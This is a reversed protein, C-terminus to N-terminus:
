MFSYACFLVMTKIRESVKFGNFFFVINCCHQFITKRLLYLYIIFQMLLRAIKIKKLKACFHKVCRFQKM